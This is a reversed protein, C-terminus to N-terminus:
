GIKKEMLYHQIQGFLNHSKEILSYGLKKYFDVAIERAHLVVLHDGRELAIQEMNLMLEKGISKGQQENEVAM